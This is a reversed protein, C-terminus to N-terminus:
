CCRPPMGGVCRPPRAFPKCHRHYHRWWCDRADDTTNGGAGATAIPSSGTAGTANEGSGTPGTADEGSDTAVTANKGSGNAGTANNDSDTAVTAHELGWQLTVESSPSYSLTPAQEMNIVTVFGCEELTLQRPSPAESSSLTVSASGDGSSEDSGDSTQTLTAVLRRFGYDFLSAMSVPLPLVPFALGIM